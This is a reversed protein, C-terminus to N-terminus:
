PTNSSGLIKKPVSTNSTPAPDSTLLPNPITNEYEGEGDKNNSAKIKSEFDDREQKSKIAVSERRKEYSKAAENQQEEIFSKLRTGITLPLYTGPPKLSQVHDNMEKSRRVENVLLDRNENSLGKLLDPNQMDVQQTPSPQADPTGFFNHVVKPIYKGLHGERAFPRPKHYAAREPQSFRQSIEHIIRAHLADQSKQHVEYNAKQVDTMQGPVPFYNGAADPPRWVTKKPAPLRYAPEPYVSLEEALKSLYTKTYQNM